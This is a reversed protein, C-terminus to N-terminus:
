KDIPSGRGRTFKPIFQCDYKDRHEKRGATSDTFLRQEDTNPDKCLCSKPKEDNNVQVIGNLVNSLHNFEPYLKM